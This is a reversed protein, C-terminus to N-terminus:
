PIGELSSHQPTDEVKVSSFASLDVYRGVFERVDERSWFREKSPVAWDAPFEVDEPKNWLPTLFSFGEYTTEFELTLSEDRYGVGEFSFVFDLELM